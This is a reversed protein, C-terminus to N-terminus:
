VDDIFRAIGAMLIDHIMQRAVFLIVIFLTVKQWILNVEILQYGLYVITSIYILTLALLSFRLRNVIKSM